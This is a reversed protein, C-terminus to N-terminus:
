GGGQREGEGPVEDMSEARLRKKYNGVALAAVEAGLYSMPSLIFGFAGLGM